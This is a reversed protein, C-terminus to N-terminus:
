RPRTVRRRLSRPVFWGLRKKYLKALESLEIVDVRREGTEMRSIRSQPWGTRRAVESQTPRRSERAAILREVFRKYAASHLSQM